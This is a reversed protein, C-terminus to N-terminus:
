LFFLNFGAIEPTQIQPANFFDINAYQSGAYKDYFM